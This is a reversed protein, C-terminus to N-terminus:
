RKLRTVKQQDTKDEATKQKMDETKKSRVHTRGLMVMTETNFDHGTDVYNRKGAIKADLGQASSVDEKWNHRQPLSPTRSKM